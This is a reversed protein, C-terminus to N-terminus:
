SCTGCYRILRPSKHSLETFPLLSRSQVLKQHLQMGALMITTSWPSYTIIPEIQKYSTHQHITSMKLGFHSALQLLLISKFQKFINTLNQISALICVVKYLWQHKWVLINVPVGSKQVFHQRHVLRSLPWTTSFNLYNRQM